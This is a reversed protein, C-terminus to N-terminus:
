EHAFRQCLRGEFKYLVHVQALPPVTENASLATWAARQGAQPM